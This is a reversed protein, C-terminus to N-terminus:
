TKKIIKKRCKPCTIEIKGKGRPVRMVTRCLKCRYYRHNKDKIKSKWFALKDRVRSRVAWYKALESQRKAFNKSFIRMYTWILIALAPFSLWFFLRFLSLFALVMGTVLLFSGFEDVGYRGSMFRQVTNNFRQFFGRM